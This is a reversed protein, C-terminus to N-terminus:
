GILLRPYSDESELQIIHPWSIIYILYGESACPPLSQRPDKEFIVNVGPHTFKWYSNMWEEWGCSNTRLKQFQWPLWTIVHMIVWIESIIIQVVTTMIILLMTTNTREVMGNNNQFSKTDIKVKKQPKSSITFDLTASGLHCILNRWKVDYTTVVLLYVM